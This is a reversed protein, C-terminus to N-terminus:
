FCFGFSVGFAINPSYGKSDGDRTVQCFWQSNSRVPSRQWWINAGGSKYKIKSNGQSYYEYQSGEGSVSYITTGFIEIESLLFLNCPVTEINSSAGGISTLKNVPKIAAQVELPMLAKIAPLHTTHMLTGDYGDSNTLTNTMSYNTGYCEHLQFTLPAVGGAAYTDHNKGIIDITYNTGNITIPKSDGVAWTSPVSDNQVASIIQEWTNNAFVADYKPKAKGWVPFNAIM